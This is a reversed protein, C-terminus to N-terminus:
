SARSAGSRIVKLSNYSVDHSSKASMGSLSLTKALLSALLIDSIM